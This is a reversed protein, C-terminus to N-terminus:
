FKQDRYFADLGKFCNASLKHGVEDECYVPQAGAKELFGVTERAQSVPVLADLTGHAVFTPMGKLRDSTALRELGHPVFGAIMALSAVKEPYLLAFVAALAAGQSFGALHLSSFDGPPFRAPRLLDLLAKIAPLFDEMGPWGEVVQNWSYGIQPASYLARPALLLANGPLRPTFIWMSNEDGTWGHLLIIVKESDAVSPPRVKFLIGDANIERIDASSSVIM